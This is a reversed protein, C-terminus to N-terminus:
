SCTNVSFFGIDLIFATQDAFSLSTLGVIEVWVYLRRKAGYKLGLLNSNRQLYTEAATISFSIPSDAFTLCTLM